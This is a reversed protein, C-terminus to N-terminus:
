RFIMDDEKKSVELFSAVDDSCTQHSVQQQFHSSMKKFLSSWTTVLDQSVVSTMKM